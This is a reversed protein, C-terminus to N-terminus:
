NSKDAPKAKAPAKAKPINGPKFDAVIVKQLFSSVNEEANKIDFETFTNLNNRALLRLARWGFSADKIKWYQEEVEQEPDLEMKALEFFKSVAPILTGKSGVCGAMNTESLNWLRDLEASGLQVLKKAKPEEAGTDMEAVSLKRKLPAKSVTIPVKSKEFPPCGKNKWAIWSHERAFLQKIASEFQREQPPTKGLLEYIQTTTADIWKINTSSLEEKRFKNAVTLGQFLVLFQCLIQRRFASDAQQLNFLKVSTLFKPFYQDGADSSMGELKLSAAADIFTKTCKKFMLWEMGSFLLKPDLFFRQLKWFQHYFGFDIGGAAEASAGEKGSDMADGDKEAPKGADEEYEIVNTSATSRLNVGSKDTLPTVAALFMLIRGSFVTHLSKSLKRKISNCLRLMTNKFKNSESFPASTWVELKNEIYQFVQECEAIVACDCLDEMLTLPTTIETEDTSAAHIGQDIVTLLTESFGDAQMLEVLVQRFSLEVLAKKEAPSLKADGPWTYELDNNCAGLAAAGKIEGKLAAAM